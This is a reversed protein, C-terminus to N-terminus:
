QPRKESPKTTSIDELRLLPRAFFRAWGLGEETGAAPVYELGVWGGFGVSALTRFFAAFDIMGTGPEHRDPYDAVHVHAIVAAHAAMFATPDIGNARAHFTDLLIAASSVGVEEVVKLALPLNNMYYGPVTGTSIPEVLLRLGRRACETAALSVNAVYTAWLAGADAQPPAIGSMVHVAPCGVSEAFDIGISLADKFEKQRGPLCAFGKEGLASDGSPLALQTFVLGHEALLGKTRGVGLAYPAPHEVAGFGARRAAAFRQELPMEAFLYGLHASLRKM